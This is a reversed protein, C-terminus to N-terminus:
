VPCHHKAATDRSKSQHPCASTTTMPCQHPFQIPRIVTTHCQECRTNNVMSRILNAWSSILVDAFEQRRQFFCTFLYVLADITEVSYALTRTTTPARTSVWGQRCGFFPSFLLRLFCYVPPYDTWPWSYGFAISPLLRSLTCYCICLSQCHRPKYGLGWKCPNSDVHYPYGARVALWWSLVLM